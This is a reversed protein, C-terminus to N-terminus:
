NPCTLLLLLFSKRLIQQVLIPPVLEVLNPQQVPQLTLQTESNALPTSRAEPLSNDLAALVPLNGRRGDVVDDSESTHSELVPTETLASEADAASLPFSSITDKTSSKPRRTRKVSSEEESQRIRKNSSSPMPLVVEPIRPVSGEAPLTLSADNANPSRCDDTTRNLQPPSQPLVPPLVEPVSSRSPATSSSESSSSSSSSM